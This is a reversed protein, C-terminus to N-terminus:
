GKLGSLAIGQVFFKQACFYLVAIPLITISSAAMMLGWEITYQEKIMNIALAVTFKNVDNLYIMPTMFANWNGIFNFLALTVLTPKCLPLIISRYIRFHNAGDLQASESYSSPIGLMFQRLMFVAYGNLMVQPVILPLFTNIWRIKSFIIYLPILTVQGPIMMTAILSAFVPKSGRFRMKSFAYASLSSSFLMGTLSVICIFLSNGISHLLVKNQSLKVFSQLYIPNPFFEPPVRIADAETKLATLVMWYFPMICLVAFFSLYAYRFVDALVRKARLGTDPAPARRAARDSM